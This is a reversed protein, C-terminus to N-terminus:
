IKVERVKKITEQLEKQAEKTAPPSVMNILTGLPLGLAVEYKALIKPRFPFEGNFYSTINQKSTRSDGIKAEIKNLEECLRQNTWKKKQLILKIYESVSIM